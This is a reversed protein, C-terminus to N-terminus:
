FLVYMNVEFTICKFFQKKKKKRIYHVTIIENIIVTVM